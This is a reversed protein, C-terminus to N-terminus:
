LKLIRAFRNVDALPDIASGTALHKALQEAFYPALSCGKTGMGNLIGVQPVFPHLGVFPRREVAVAPRLSSLHDVVTFPLKVNQQLEQMKKAKFAATPLDDEFTNEYSSGIWWLGNYWPVLTSNGAKFINDHPLGPIDAILAEGKNFVFPLNKFWPLAFANIGNCFIIKSANIHKYTVGGPLLTLLDPNFREELLANGDRLKKRWGALLPFLDVLWVPDIEASDFFQWFMDNYLAGRAAPVPKIYSNAEGIRKDYADRMQQSPPFAVINAQRIVTEGIQSGIANYAQWTYGMLIEAMWTTVVQRGTVPNIVGSAVKTATFPQAEDVVLVTLGQQQLQWSLFTGCIGQGIVLVDVAPLPHTATATNQIDQEDVM